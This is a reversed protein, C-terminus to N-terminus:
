CDKPIFKEILSKFDKTQLIELLYDVSIVTALGSNEEFIIRPKKTYPSIAVDRYSIYNSIIGIFKPPRVSGIHITAKEPKFEVVTPRWFVPSGSNGPFVNADILFTSNEEKRAIIGSRVIPKIRKLSVLGMPFGLFFIDDGDSINKFEEFLNEPLTKVDALGTEEIPFPTIALDIESKPHFFWNDKIRKKIDSISFTGVSSDKRNYSFWIDGNNRAIHGATVLCYLKKYLILVGTGIPVIIEEGSENKLKKQILIVTKPWDKHLWSSSMYRM